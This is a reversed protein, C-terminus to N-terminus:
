CCQVMLVNVSSSFLNESVYFFFFAVKLEEASATRGDHSAFSADLKQKDKHGAALQSKLLDMQQLLKDKEGM